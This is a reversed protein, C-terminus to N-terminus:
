GSRFLFGWIDLVKELRPPSSRALTFITGYGSDCSLDGGEGATGYLTRNTAQVLTGPNADTRNFNHLTTLTGEATIKFVTGWYHNVVGGTVGYFNGDTGQVVLGWDIGDKLDFDVLTTFTDAPSAIVALACFILIYIFGILKPSIKSMVVRQM